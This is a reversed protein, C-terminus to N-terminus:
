HSLSQLFGKVKEFLEAVSPFISIFFGGVEPAVMAIFPYLSSEGSISEPLEFGLNVIVWNLVSLFLAFKLIGLAAGIFNDFSGLLTLDIIKKMIRGVVNVVILIVVFILIFAAIPLFNGLTDEYSELVDIGLHLLKFGGFVALLFALISIVELLFGKQYGKYAGFLLIGIFIFDAINM